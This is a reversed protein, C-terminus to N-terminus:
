FIEEEEERNISIDDVYLVIREEKQKWYPGGEIHVYWFAIYMDTDDWGQKLAHNKAHEYLNKSDAFFQCWRGSSIGSVATVKCQGSMLRYKGEETKIAKPYFIGVALSAVYRGESRFLYGSFTIDETLSINLRSRWFCFHGGNVTFDIKFSKEGSHAQEESLGKFNIKYETNTTPTGSVDDEKEFDNSYIVGEEKEQQAFVTKGANLCLGLIAILGVSVLIKRMRKEKEM